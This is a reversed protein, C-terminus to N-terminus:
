LPHLTFRALPIHTFPLSPLPHFPVFTIPDQLMRNDKLEQHITSAVFEAFVQFDKWIAVHPCIILTSSLPPANAAALFAVEPFVLKLVDSPTEGQCTVFRLNGRNHSKGAWPCLGLGIPFTITWEQVKRAYESDPPVNSFHECTRKNSKGQSYDDESSGISSTSPHDDTSVSSSYSSSDTEQVSM